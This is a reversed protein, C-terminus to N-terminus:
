SKKAKHSVRKAAPKASQARPKTPAKPATPKRAAPKRRGRATRGGSGGASQARLVAAHANLRGYGYQRSFGNQYGGGAPDIKEATDRLIAIVEDRTLTPRVSLVLAGIGAALPTASSTGGFDDAYAGTLNYGRNPYSVDTTTIGARAADPDSSPAVFDIGAGYNSYRSRRGRDNSAGIAIAADSRAPFAISSAYDNGTAVFVLTGLGDRGSAAM